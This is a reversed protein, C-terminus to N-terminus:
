KHMESELFTAWMVGDAVILSNDRCVAIKEQRM